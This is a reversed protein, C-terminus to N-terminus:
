QERSGKPLLCLSVTPSGSEFRCELTFDIGGDLANRVTELTLDTITKSEEEQLNLIEERQRKRRETKSKDIIDDIHDEPKIVKGFGILEAALMTSMCFVEIEVGDEKAQQLAEAFGRDGSVLVIKRAQKYLRKIDEIILPDVDKDPKSQIVEYGVGELFQIFRTNREDPKTYYRASTQDDGSALFDLLKRFDFSIEMNSQMGNANPGDVFILTEDESKKERYTVSGTTQGEAM